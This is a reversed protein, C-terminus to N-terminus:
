RWGPSAPGAASGVGMAVPWPPRGPASRRQIGHRRALLTILVAGLLPALLQVLSLPSGTGASRDMMTSIDPLFPLTAEGVLNNVVHMAISAELGGTVWVLYCAIVGFSFYFINLWIDAAGHALMFLLSSILGGLVAGSPEHPLISAFTRNALGRFGFEEGACQLPTTLLIGLILLGTDRGVHLEGATGSFELVALVLWIPVLVAFCVGLWRWRLHGTVSTLWRVPQGFIAVSVLMAIPIFGALALNNAIFVVPTIGRGNALNSVADALPVRGTIDDVVIALGILLMSLMFTAMLGVPVALVVRWPNWRPTRWFGAYGTEVVPLWPKPPPATPFSPTGPAHWGPTGWGPQYSGSPPYAPVSPNQSAPGPPPYNGNSAPRFSPGSPPYPGQQGPWSPSPPWPPQQPQNSQQPNSPPWGGPWPGPPTGGPSTSM